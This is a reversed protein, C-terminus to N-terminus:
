NLNIYEIKDLGTNEDFTFVMIRSKGTYGNETTWADNFCGASCGFITVGDKEETFMHHQHGVLWVHECTNAFDQPHEIQMLTSLRSKDKNYHSFGICNVGYRYYKRPQATSNVIVRDDKKYYAEVVKMAFYSEWVDHNGPVFIVQTPALEAFQNIVWILFECGKEFIERYPASNDQKNRMSSTYGFYNSNFLDQGVPIVIESVGASGRSVKNAYESIYSKFRKIQKDLDDDFGVESKLSSRGLHLDYFCPVLCKGAPAWAKYPYPNNMTDKVEHNVDYYAFYNLISEIDNKKLLDSKPKVVIKSSHLTKVGNEATKNSQQWKSVKASVLDFEDPNFGHAKLLAEPNNVDEESISITKDSSINGNSLIENVEKTTYPKFYGNFDFAENEITDQAVWGGDKFEDYIYMGRRLKDVSPTDLGYAKKLNIVDQWIAEGNRVAELFQYLSELYEQKQKPNLDKSEM